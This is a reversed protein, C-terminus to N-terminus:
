SMVLDFAQQNLKDANGHLSNVMRKGYNDDKNGKMSIHNSTYDTIAQFLKYRTDKLDVLDAKSEFLELVKEQKNLNITNKRNAILDGLADFKDETTPFLTELTNSIYETNINQTALFNMQEEHTRVEGILDALDIVHNEMKTHVNKTHRFRALTKNVKGQAQAMKFTNMCETRITNLCASLSQGGFANSLFLRTCTPSVDGNITGKHVLVSIFFTQGGNLTGCSEVHLNSYQKLLGEVQNYLVENDVITYGSGVSPFLLQNTDGRFLASNETEYTVGNSEFSLPRLDVPYDSIKKVTDLSVGGVINDYGYPSSGMIESYGIVGSDFETIGTITRAQVNPAQTTTTEQTTTNM